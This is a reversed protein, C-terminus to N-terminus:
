KGTRRGAAAKIKRFELKDNSVASLISPTNSEPLAFRLSFTGDKRPRVKKGGLRVEKGPETRGCVILEAGAEFHFEREEGPYEGAGGAVNGSSGLFVLEESAGLFVRKFYGRKMLQEISLGSANELSVVYAVGRRKAYRRGCERVIRESIIDMLLPSIGAYYARIDDESLFFKRARGRSRDNFKKCLSEGASVRKIEGVVYASSDKPDDKVEMWMVEPRHTFSKRPIHIFNSRVLPFFKGDAARMGLECCYVVNDSWFNIYWNNAFPGVEIDYWHNANSGNFDKYTVDYMRLVTAAASLEEGILGKLSEISSPAIEWYAHAWSPDRAILTLKTRGYASPLEYTDTFEKKEPSPTPTAPRKVAEARRKGPPAARVAPLAEVAPIDMEISGATKKANMLGERFAERILKAKESKKNRVGTSRQKILYAGRKLDRAVNSFIRIHSPIVPRM